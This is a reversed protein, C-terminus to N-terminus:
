RRGKSIESDPSVEKGTKDFEPYYEHPQIEEKEHSEIDEGSPFSSGAGKTHHHRSTQNGENARNNEGSATRNPM